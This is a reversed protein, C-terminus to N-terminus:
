REDGLFFLAITGPGSHAGITPCVYNVIFLKDGFRKRVEAEVYRAEEECDGHSIFVADNQDKFSGMKKEMCDVLSNLSKKRGRVTFLPILHGEDDVHLIPKLNIMTGLVAAAKSVRGGRHLHFLDDVTFMHVLNLRHAELWEAIEDLSKGQKKLQVAKHVLLGEGLSACLSDVVVIKVGDHEEMVEDAALRLSNYSGSLGSSFAIQLIENTDKLYEEFAEKAEAINIQSTTPMQGERMKNYFVPEPLSNFHNYVVDDDFMYSLSIVGLNNEQIYDEPLDATNCISIKFDSM